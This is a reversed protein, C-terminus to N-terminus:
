IKDERGVRQKRLKLIGKQTHAQQHPELGEIEMM